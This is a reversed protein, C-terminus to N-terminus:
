KAIILGQQLSTLEAENNTAYGLDMAYVRCVVDQSNRFVDGIGAQGLNGKSASDFNLKIFGMQPPQQCQHLNQRPVRFKWIHPALM